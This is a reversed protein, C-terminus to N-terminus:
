RHKEIEWENKGMLTQPWFPYTRCQTPKMQHVKCQNTDSLFICQPKGNIKKSKLSVMVGDPTDVTTTNKEIFEQVDSYGLFNSINMAEAMNLFVNTKGKCCKGCQTCSFQLSGGADDIWTRQRPRSTTSFLCKSCSVMEKQYFSSQFLLRKMGRLM